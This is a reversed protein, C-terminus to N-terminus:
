LYDLPDAATSDANAICPLASTRIRVEFHLHVGTSTGTSGMYGIRQGVGVTDGASVLPASALHAYRTQIPQGNYVSNIYVVYGYGNLYGAYSVSGTQVAVVADGTVDQVSADIDIGLHSGSVFYQNIKTSSPVPWAMTSNLYKGSVYGTVAGNCLIKYWGGSEYLVLVLRGPPLQDVIGYSTGPGSRVNLGGVAGSVQLAYTGYVYRIYDASVYGYIGSAYEVYWWNGTKYILTVYSGPPLKYVISGTLGASSRVNLNTTTTTVVGAASTVGMAGAGTTVASGVLLAALILVTVATKRFRRLLTM